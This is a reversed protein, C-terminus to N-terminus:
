AFLSTCNKKKKKLALSLSVERLILLVMFPHLPNNHNSVRIVHLFLLFFILRKEKKKKKNVLFFLCCHGADPFCTVASFLVGYIEVANDNTTQERLSVVFYKVLKIRSFLM